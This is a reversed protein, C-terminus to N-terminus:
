RAVPRIESRLLSPDVTVVGNALAPGYRVKGGQVFAPYAFWTFEAAPGGPRPADLTV